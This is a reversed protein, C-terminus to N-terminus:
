CGPCRAARPRLPWRPRYRARPRWRRRTVAAALDDLRERTVAIRPARPEVPAVPADALLGFVLVRGGGFAGPGRCPDLSLAALPVIGDSPVVGHTGKFGVVGCYAAPRRRLVSGITQTGLSVPVKRAGVAAASGSSSGGRPTRRTVAIARRRPEYYALETTTNKGVIM